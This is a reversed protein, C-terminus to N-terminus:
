RRRRVFSPRRPSTSRRSGASARHTPRTAATAPATATPWAGRSTSSRSWRWTPLTEEIPTDLYGGAGYSQRGGIMVLGKGLDRVAVQLAARADDGLADAPVNDLMISDYGALTALSSPVGTTPVVTVDIDGAGLSAVLDAARSADDTAVLVQPPGTVLLYTEAANNETFRDDAAAPEIVARFVHFGADDASVSFPVTTVGPELELERTAVTAGDALLRLTANTAVTARVRVNLDVTEGVRAGPPGDVVDVLVEAATAEGPVVVDLRIGRAAAAAIADAAAGSTDNGDSLLVLRQQTGQPLIAASLRVAAAVDTAGAVPASAPDALEDLESPLRDVLANAGFVVVGATDGEPMERVAERAWEVLDERTADLMSASADILFVVSLRDAPLAMRMGALALVLCAALVIRIALSAVRRGAPLRRSAALWGVAVAIAIPVGLLLWLPDTFAVPM